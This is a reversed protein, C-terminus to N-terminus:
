QPRTFTSDHSKPPVWIDLLYNGNEERLYNIDGNYKNVIYSGDSDFVVQHGVACIKMVSALPKSVECAQMRM